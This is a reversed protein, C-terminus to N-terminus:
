SAGGSVGFRSQWLLIMARETAFVQMFIDPATRREQALAELVRGVEAAREPRESAIVFAMTECVALQDVAFRQVSGDAIALRAARRRAIQEPRIPERGTPVAATARRTWRDLVQRAAARPDPAVAVPTLAADPAVPTREAAADPTAAGGPPLDPNASPEPPASASSDTNGLRGLYSAALQDALRDVVRVESTAAFIQLLREVLVRRAAARWGPDDPAPLSGVGVFAVLAAADRTRPMSPVLELLANVMTPNGAYRRVIEGASRRLPGTGRVAEFAVVEAERGGILAGQAIVEALLQLKLGTSTANLYRVLWEDSSGVGELRLVNTNAAAARMASSVDDDPHAALDAARQPEGSWLLEAAQNLRALVVAAALRESSSDGAPPRALVATVAESWERVVDERLGPQDLGWIRAFRDRIEARQEEGARAPVIMARDTGQNIAPNDILEKTVVFLDASTMGQDVLWRLLWPRALDGESWALRATLLATIQVSAASETPDPGSLLVTELALLGLREKLRDDGVTAAALADSWASWAAALKPDNAASRAPQPVMREILRSLATIVGSEFLATRSLTQDISVEHLAGRLSAAVSAPVDTERALRSLMGTSWAVTWVEEPTLDLHAEGDLLRAGNVIVDLARPGIDPASGARYMFDIVRDHAAVLADPAFKGWSLQLQAIAAEFDALARAPDADVGQTCQDLRALLPGVDAVPLRESPPRLTPGATPGLPFLPQVPTPLEPSQVLPVTENAPKAIPTSGLTTAWIIIGALLLLAVISGGAIFLVKKLDDPAQAQARYLGRDIPIQTFAPRASSAPAPAAERPHMERLRASPAARLPVTPPRSNSVKAAPQSPADLRGAPVTPPRASPLAHPRPLPDARTPTSPAHTNPAPTSPAQPHRMMGQLAGALQDSSLGRAHAMLSLRRLSDRNWGGFTALTLLADHEIAVHGSDLRGSAPAPKGTVPGPAPGDEGGYRAVLRARASPNLLQASAAHLALRVEDAEPSAAQPHVDIQALRENLAAVIREDTCEAAAIGLLGFPGTNAADPGLLREIPDRRHRRPSSDAPPTPSDLTM